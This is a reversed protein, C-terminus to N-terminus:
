SNKGFIKLTGQFGKIVNQLDDIVENQHALRGEMEDIIDTRLKKMAEDDQVQIKEVYDAQLNTQDKCEEKIETLRAIRENKHNELIQAINAAEDALKKLM